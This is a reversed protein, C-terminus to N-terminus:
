KQRRSRRLFRFGAIELGALVVGMFPEYRCLKSPDYWHTHAYRDLLYTLLVILPISLWWFAPLPKKALWFSLVTGILLAEILLSIAWFPCPCKTKAGAVEGAQISIGGGLKEGEKPTETPKIGVGLIGRWGPKNSVENSYPSAVPCDGGIAASVVFYYTKGTSLGGVLYSDTNGVNANGYIYNGPSEGYTIAYHDAREVGTWTLKVETSSLNTASLLIPVKPAEPPVCPSAPGGGGGGGGGGVESVGGVGASETPTPTPTPGEPQTTLTPSTPPTSPTPTSTPQPPIETPTPQVGTPTPVPPQPTSTPRCPCHEGCWDRIRRCLDGVWDSRQCASCDECSEAGFARKGLLGYYAAVKYGSYCFIAIAGVFLLLEVGLCLIPQIKKFIKKFKKM